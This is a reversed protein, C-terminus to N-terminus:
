QQHDRLSLRMLNPQLLHPSAAPKGALFNDAPHSPPPPPPSPPESRQMPADRTHYRLPMSLHPRTHTLTVTWFLAASRSCAPQHHHINPTCKCGGRPHHRCWRKGTLSCNSSYESPCSSHCSSPCNIASGGSSHCKRVYVDIYSQQSVVM